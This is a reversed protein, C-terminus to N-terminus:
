PYGAEAKRSGIIAQNAEAQARGPEIGQHYLERAQQETYLKGETKLLTILQEKNLNAQVLTQELDIDPRVKDALLQLQAWKEETEQEAGQAGDRAREGFGQAQAWYRGL